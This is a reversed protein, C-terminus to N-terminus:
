LSDVDSAIMKSDANSCNMCNMMTWDDELNVKDQKYHKKEFNTIRANHNNEFDWKIYNNNYNYNMCEQSM